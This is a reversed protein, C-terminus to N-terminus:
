KIKIICTRANHGTEGCAGYQRSTARNKKANGVNENNNFM